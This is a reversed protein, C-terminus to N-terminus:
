SRCVYKWYVTILDAKWNHFWLGFTLVLSQSVHQAARDQLRGGDGTATVPAFFKQQRNIM